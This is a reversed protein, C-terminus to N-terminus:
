TGIQTHNITIATLYVQRPELALPNLSMNLKEYYYKGKRLDLSVRTIIIDDYNHHHANFLIFEVRM